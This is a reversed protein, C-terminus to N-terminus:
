AEGGSYRRRRPRGGRRLALPHAGAARVATGVPVLGASQRDDPPPLAPAVDCLHVVPPVLGPAAIAAIAGWPRPRTTPSPDSRAPASPRVRRRQPRGLFPLGWCSDKDRTSSSPRCSGQHPPAREQKQATVASRGRTPIRVARRPDATSSVRACGNARWRPPLGRHRRCEPPSRRARARRLLQPRSPLLARPGRRSRRLGAPCLRDEPPHRPVRGESPAQPTQPRTRRCSGGAVLGDARLRDGM